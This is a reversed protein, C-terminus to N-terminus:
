RLKEINKPNGVIWLVDGEEFVVDPTPV